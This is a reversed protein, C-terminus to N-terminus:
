IQSADEDARSKIGENTDETGATEEFHRPLLDEEMSELLKNLLEITGKSWNSPNATCRGHTALLRTGETQKVGQGLAYIATMANSPHAAATITVEMIKITNIVCRREAIIM